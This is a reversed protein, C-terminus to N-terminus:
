QTTQKLDEDITEYSNIMLLDSAIISEIGQGLQSERLTTFKARTRVYSGNKITSFLYGTPSILVTEYYVTISENKADCFLGWIRIQKELGSELDTGFSKIAIPTYM